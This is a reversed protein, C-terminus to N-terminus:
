YAHYHDHHNGWSNLLLHKKWVFRIWQKTPRYYLSYAWSTNYGFLALYISRIHGYYCRLHYGHCQYSLCQKLDNHYRIIMSRITDYWKNLDYVFMKFSWLSIWSLTMSSLDNHHWFPNSGWPKWHFEALSEMQHSKSASTSRLAVSRLLWSTAGVTYNQVHICM